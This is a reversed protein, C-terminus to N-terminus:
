STAATPTRSRPGSCSGSGSWGRRPTPPPPESGWRAVMVGWLRGDVVVPAGVGLRAPSKTALKSRMDDEAYEVRGPRGTRRVIESVSGVRYEVRSGLPFNFTNRGHDAVLLIEEDPEFRALTVGDAGLARVMEVTVADFLEIPAPGEAVLTAVRRLAAQEDILRALEARAEANAIATAILDTFQGLREETKAPFPDDATKGGVIAGWLRGEVAIPAAVVCRTGAALGAEGISGNAPAYDNLLVPRGTAFVRSTANEGGLPYRAGIPLEEEREGWAAIVLATGRAEFRFMRVEKTALLHGIEEAIATFVRSQSAEQAVLTAVRQLSAQEDALRQLEERAESNAIATAVLETFETLDAAIGSPLQDPAFSSVVMAGWLRGAVAIPTGVTSRIGADRVMDAIEGTLGVYDDIRAPRLSDRIQTVVNTGDLSWRTGVRFLTGGPSFSARETATGDAEYRVISVLPVGLVKAVQEAVVAFLTEAAAGQAVLTAVRRLAAQQEALQHLESGDGARGDAM